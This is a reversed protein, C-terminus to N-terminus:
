LDRQEQSIESCLARYTGDGQKKFPAARSGEASGDMRRDISVSTSSGHVYPRTRRKLTSNPTGEPLYGCVCNSPGENERPKLDRDLLDQQGLRTQTRSLGQGDRYETREQSRTRLCCLGPGGAAQSRAASNADSPPPKNNM